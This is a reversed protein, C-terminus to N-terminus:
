RRSPPLGHRALQKASQKNQISIKGNFTVPPKLHCFVVEVVVDLKIFYRYSHFFFSLSLSLILAHTLASSSLLLTALSRTAKPCRKDGWKVVTDREEGGGVWRRGTEELRKIHGVTLLCSIMWACWLVDLPFKLGRRENMRGVVMASLTSAVEFHQSLSM